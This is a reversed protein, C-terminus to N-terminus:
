TQAKLYQQAAVSRPQMFFQAIPTHEAVTGHEMFVVSSALRKAQGRNHTALLVSTGRAVCDSIIREVAQTHASDLSATPEDMLIVGAEVVLAQALAVRQQEGGSLLRAARSAFGLCDSRTLAHTVRASQEPASLTRGGKSVALAYAM